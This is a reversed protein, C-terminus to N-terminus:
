GLGRISIPNGVKDWALQVLAPDPQAAGAAMALLLALLLTKM